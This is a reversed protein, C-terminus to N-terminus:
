RIQRVGGVSHFQALWITALGCDPDEVVHELVQFGNQNLLARYEEPDLSSHYLAEGELEGIAEGHSPGSTFM